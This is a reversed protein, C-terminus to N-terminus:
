GAVWELGFVQSDVDEFRRRVVLSPEADTRTDAVWIEVRGSLDFSCGGGGQHSFCRKKSKEITATAWTVLRGDFDFDRFRLVRKDFRALSRAHGDLSALILESGSKGTDREIVFRGNALRVPPHARVDLLHGKPSSGSYWEVRSPLEYRTRYTVIITGDDQLDLGTDDLYVRPALRAVYAVRHAHTDYVVIRRPPWVAWAAYHGALRVFTGCCPLPEALTSMKDAAYNRLALRDGADEGGRCYTESFAVSDESVDLDYVEGTWDCDRPQVYVPAFRDGPRATWLDSNNGACGGEQRAENPKPPPPEWCEGWDRVFAIRSPSAALAKFSWDPRKKGEADKRYLLKPEEEPRGSWLLIHDGGGEGWVVQDGALVPGVDLLAKDADGQSGTSRGAGCGSAVVALCLLAALCFKM